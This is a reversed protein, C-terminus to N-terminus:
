ALWGVLAAPHHGSEVKSKGDLRLMWGVLIPDDTPPVVRVSGIPLRAAL